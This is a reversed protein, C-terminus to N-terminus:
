QENSARKQKQEQGNPPLFESAAPAVRLGSPQGRLQRSCNSGGITILKVAVDAARKKGAWRSRLAMDAPASGRFWPLPHRGARTPPLFGCDAPTVVGAALANGGGFESNSGGRALKERWVARQKERWSGTVGALRFYSGGRCGSHWDVAPSRASKPRHVACSRANPVLALARATTSELPPQLM